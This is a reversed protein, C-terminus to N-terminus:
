FYWQLSVLKQLLIILFVLTPLGIKAFYKDFICFYHPFNESFKCWFCSPPVCNTGFYDEIVYGNQKQKKSGPMCIIAFHLEFHFQSVVRYITIKSFFIGLFFLIIYYSVFRLDDYKLIEFIPMSCIRYFFVSKNKKWVPKLCKEWFWLFCRRYKRVM